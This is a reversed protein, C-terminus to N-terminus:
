KKLRTGVYYKLVGSNKFGERLIGFFGIKRQDMLRYILEQRRKNLVAKLEVVPFLKKLENAKILNAIYQDYESLGYSPKEKNSLQMHLDLNKDALELNLDAFIMSYFKRYEGRKKKEIEENVNYAEQRYHYLPNKISTTKAVKNLLYFLQYDELRWFDNKYTIGNDHMTATRFMCSAHGISHGFILNARNMEPNGGYVQLDNRVGFTQIASGCVDIEPHSEMYDILVQFRDPTILDDGDMRVYYKTGIKALGTNLTDVIGSNKEKRIVILRPDSYAAVEELSNDTSCDDVFFIQFDSFTQAFLSDM